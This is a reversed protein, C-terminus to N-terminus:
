NTRSAVTGPVTSNSLKFMEFKARLDCHVRARVFGVDVACCFGFSNYCM